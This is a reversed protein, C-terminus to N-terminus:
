ETTVKNFQNQEHFTVYAKAKARHYLNKAYDESYISNNKLPYKKSLLDAILTFKTKEIDRLYLVYFDREKYKILPLDKPLDDDPMYRKLFNWHEKLYTQLETLNFNNYFSITFQGNESSYEDPYISLKATKSLPLRLANSTILDSWALSEIKNKQGPRLMSILYDLDKDKIFYIYKRNIESIDKFGTLIKNDAWDYGNPPIDAKKRMDSLWTQFRDNHELLRFYKFFRYDFFDSNERFLKELDEDSYATHFVFLQARVFDSM